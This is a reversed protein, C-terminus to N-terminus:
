LQEMTKANTILQSKNDLNINPPYLWLVKEEGYITEMKNIRNTLPSNDKGRYFENLNLILLSSNNHIRGGLSDINEIKKYGYKAYFKEHLVYCLNLAFHHKFHLGTAIACEVFFKTLRLSRNTKRISLRSAECITSNNNESFRILGKISQSHSFYQISPFRFDSNGRNVNLKYEERLEESWKGSRTEKQEIIRLYGIPKTITNNHQEFLGFHKAHFDYKDIDIGANNEPCLCANRSNRYAKYRIKLLQYLEEKNRVERFYYNTTM